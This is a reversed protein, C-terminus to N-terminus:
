EATRISNEKGLNILGSPGINSILQNKYSDSDFKASEQHKNDWITAQFYNRNGKVYIGFKTRESIQIQITDFTNGAVEYPVSAHGDLYIGYECNSIHIQELTNGNIWNLNGKEAPTTKFHIAKNFGYINLNSVHVWSISDLNNQTRFYIANGEGNRKGIIKMNSITTLHNGSLFHDGGDLYIASASYGEVFYTNITGGQISGNLRIHAVNVNKKALLTAGKSLILTVNKKIEITTEINYTGKPVYVDGGGSKNAQDIAKQIASSDDKKDQGDAGFQSVTYDYSNEYDISSSGPEFYLM